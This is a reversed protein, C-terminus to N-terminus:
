FSIYTQWFFILFFILVYIPTQPPLEIILLMWQTVQSRSNSDGAGMDSSSSCFQLLLQGRFAFCFLIFLSVLCLTTVGITGSSLPVLLHARPAGQGALRSSVTLGPAPLSQWFSCPLTVSFSMVVGTGSEVHARHGCVSCLCYIQWKCATLLFLM